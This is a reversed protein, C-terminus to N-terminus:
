DECIPKIKHYRSGLDFYNKPVKLADFTFTGGFIKNRALICFFVFEWSDVRVLDWSGGGDGKLFDDSTGFKKVFTSATISEILSLDSGFEFDSGLEACM